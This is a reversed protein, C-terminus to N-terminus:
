KGYKMKGCMTEDMEVVNDEGGIKEVNTKADEMCLYRFYSFWKNITHGSLHTEKYGPQPLHTEKTVTEYTKNHGCFQYMLLVFERLKINSNSLVSNHLISTKQRCKGCEFYHYNTNTKYKGMSTLCTSCTAMTPLIEMEQLLSITSAITVMRLTLSALSAMFPGSM